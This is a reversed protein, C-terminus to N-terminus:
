REMEKFAEILEPDAAQEGKMYSAFSEAIYEGDNVCAYGSVKSGYEDRRSMLYNYKDKDQKLKSELVHGLEHHMVDDVTDPVTGRGSVHAQEFVIRAEKSAKSLDYKEPHLLYSQIAEKEARAQANATKLDKLSKRNLYFSNRIPSYGATAGEILKGERSNGTPAKIGGFKGVDYTHYFRGIVENVKNAVDVSIGKYSVGLAGFQSTDTFTQAYEEAEAITKAPTFTFINTDAPPEAPASFRVRDVLSQREADPMADWEASTGGSELYRLWAEHEAEDIYPATTCHCRPHLPPANLGAEMDRVYFIDGDIERCIPCANRNVAVYEYRDFGNQEYSDRAVETQVRRLETVVLRQADSLSVDFKEKIRQAMGRSGIGAIFGSNLQQALEDKLNDAHAWIRDSFTANYFDANVINKASKLVDAETMQQGLIGAQRYYEAVARDTLTKETLADLRNFGDCQGLGIEAKLLELRNIKMTANYLRMEANAKDSFDKDKVYQEALKEYKEIDAKSVRRKAEALTIGEADAYKGYFANIQNDAWVYMDNYIREIEAETSKEALLNAERQQEERKIWYQRQAELRIKQNSTLAM